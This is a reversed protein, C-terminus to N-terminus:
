FPFPMGSEGGKEEDLRRKPETAVDIGFRRHAAQAVKSDVANVLTHDRGIFSTLLNAKGGLVVSTDSRGFRIVNELGMFFPYALSCSPAFGIEAGIDANRISELFIDDSLQALSLM